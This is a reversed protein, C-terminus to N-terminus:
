IPRLIIAQTGWILSLIGLILAWRISIQM